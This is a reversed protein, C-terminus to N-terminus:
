NKPNLKSKISKCKKESPSESPTPTNIDVDLSSRCRGNPCCRCFSNKLYILKM